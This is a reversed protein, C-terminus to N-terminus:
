YISFCTSICIVKCINDTLKRLRLLMCSIPFPASFAKAILLGKYVILIINILNRSTIEEIESPVMKIRLM